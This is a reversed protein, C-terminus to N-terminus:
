IHSCMEFTSMRLAAQVDKMFSCNFTKLIEEKNSRTLKLFSIIATEKILQFSVIWKVTGLVVTTSYKNSRTMNRLTKVRM